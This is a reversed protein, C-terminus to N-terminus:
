CSGREKCTLVSLDLPLLRIAPTLPAGRPLSAPCGPGGGATRLSPVRLGSPHCRCDQPIATAALAEAGPPDALPMTRQNTEKQRCGPGVM